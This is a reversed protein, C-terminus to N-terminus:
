KGRSLALSRELNAIRQAVMVDDMAQISERLTEALQKTHLGERAVQAKRESEVSAGLERITPTDFLATVPIRVGLNKAIHSVVRTALLSHGGIEFFSENRGILETGLLTRWIAALAEEVAGRPTDLQQDFPAAAAPKPLAARDVKGNPMLPIVSLIVFASPVCYSPLSRKLKDRLEAVVRDPETVASSRLTIYAVLRKEGPIDERAIVLAREVEPQRLLHSEVEDPEIRFGRIKVQSDNRGLYEINGDSRWRGLDGTKYMRAGLRDVFPDPVFKEATSDPRNLYGRVVGTGGIYIEGSMGIPLPQCRSDLIYIRTNAIPRGIPVQEGFEDAACDFVTAWVTGETPGYENFIRAAPMRNAAAELLSRPCAEGAVIVRSLSDLGTGEELLDLISQYLSPICLMESIQERRIIDLLEAPDGASRSKAVTLKGGTSLVGFIGAISSDFAFSSVLLFNPCQGYLRIRALNSALISRHEVLVGKPQGSSGSTYIAYALDASTLGLTTWDPNVVPEMSILNWDADMSVIAAPCSSIRRRLTEDSLVVVPAADRLAQDLREPPYTPDMPVYAGGAKLVGLLGVVMEVSREAFVAVLRGPSVGKRMLYHALQNARLNLENYSLSREDCTVAIADGACQVQAEFLEHIVTFQSEPKPTSNFQDMLIRREAADLLQIENCCGDVAIFASLIKKFCGVFRNVSSLGYLDSSYNLFGTMGDKSERISLLLDFQAGVDLAQEESFTLDSANTPGSLPIQFVFMVQFVPNYSRTGSRQLAGVVQDFPAMQHAHAALMSSKVNTFLDRVAGHSDVRIRLAVTNAFFGVLDHLETRQRNAMPMGIAVDDQGSFRALVLAWAALTTMAITMDHQRSLTRLKSTLEADITFPVSAGRHSQILPRRKDTPLPLLEAGGALVAKWYSLHPEMERRPIERQWLAYEAYRIPLSPLSAPFGDRVEKYLHPIERVLVGISWGDCVMHHVTVLLVHNDCSLEFLAARILPGRNLFFPAAIEQDIERRLCESQVDGCQLPLHLTRLPLKMNQVIKQVPEGNLTEFVTRLAEHREILADLTAQLTATDLNGSLRLVLPIHYAALGGELQEIFWLSQQAWSLPSRGVSEARRIPQQYSRSTKEVSQTIKAVTASEFFQGLTLEVGLQTGIRAITRVASISDGGLDFFNDHVGIREAGIVEAFINAVLQELSNRPMTHGASAPLRNGVFKGVQTVIAPLQSLELATDHWGHKSVPEQSVHSVSMRPENNGYQRASSRPELQTMYQTPVRFVVWTGDGVVEDSPVRFADFCDHLFERAPQNRTTERYRLAVYGLGRGKARTGLERVIRHEVGRGLARCSLVFTDVDLLDASSRYFLAGVLGYDGFRDRVNVVAIELSRSDFASAIEDSRRRIGTLNFQNTRQVLEAVRALQNSHMPQVDVQLELSDLFSQLDCAHEMALRRSQNERYQDTRRQAERTVTVRDFAWVHDLFHLIESESQPLQLVLVSPCNARVEACERPDDDIFLFSDLSLDLEIALSRLNASKPQWNVRKAVLHKDRLSMDLRDRFVAEVEAPNNKSCLCLLMGAQYQRKLLKQLELRAPTLEIGHIGDEGCIGKWLTNDCDVAIVKFPPKVLAAIRRAFLTAIAVYYANEYPLHGIRDTVSDQYNDLPYLKRLDEHSWVHVDSLASLTEYNRAALGAILARYDAPLNSSPQCLFVFLPVHTRSRLTQTAALFEDSARELHARVRRLTEGTPLDRIWDDLRVLLINVGHKNRTFASKADLLQQMVQAYPQLEVRAALGLEGMWFRLPTLLPDATFTAAVPLVLPEVADAPAGVADLQSLEMRSAENNSRRDM